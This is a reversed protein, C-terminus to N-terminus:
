EFTFCTQLSNLLFIGFKLKFLDYCKTGKICGDAKVEGVCACFMKRMACQFM